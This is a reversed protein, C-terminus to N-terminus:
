AATLEYLTETLAATDVKDTVFVDGVDRLLVFRQRGSKKKKDRAMVELMNNVTVDSPIRTPLGTKDLVTEIRHQLDPSCYGLRSSLNSAAVLGIAVAEGHNATNDTLTEIAYGFTHGLHLVARIGRELPDRQIISIKVQIAQAVLTQLMEQSTQIESSIHTWKGNEVRTFLDPDGILSQKIIEAMGSAFERSSLSQLTAVDAIVAKPQKFAGILNRGLPLNIGAKGGISTDAMASLSTPCQVLDVGRMYTASVFGAIGSVVSGGLAVITTDRGFGKEVLEECVTQVTQL